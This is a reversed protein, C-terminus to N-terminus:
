NVRLKEEVSGGNKGGGRIAGGRRGESRDNVEFFTRGTCLGSWAYFKNRQFIGKTKGVM